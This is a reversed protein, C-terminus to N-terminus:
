SRRRDRSCKHYMRLTIDPGRHSRITRYGRPPRNIIVGHAHIAEYYWARPSRALYRWGRLYDKKQCITLSIEQVSFITSDPNKNSVMLCMKMEKSKRHISGAVEAEDYTAMAHKYYTRLSINGPSHIRLARNRWQRFNLSPIGHADRYTKSSTPLVTWGCITKNKSLTYTINEFGVM